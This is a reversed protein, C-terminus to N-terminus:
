KRLQSIAIIVGFGGIVVPMYKSITNTLEDSTKIGAKALEQAQGAAAVITQNNKDAFNLVTSLANITNKGFSDNQVNARDGLVAALELSHGKFINALANGYYNNSNNVSVFDKGTLGIDGIKSDSRTYTNTIQQNTTKQSSKGGWM